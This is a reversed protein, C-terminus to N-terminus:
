ADSCRLAVVDHRGAEFQREKAIRGLGFVPAIQNVEPWVIRPGGDDQHKGDELRALPVDFAELGKWPDDGPKRFDAENERPVAPESGVDLRPDPREPDLAVDDEGAKMRM